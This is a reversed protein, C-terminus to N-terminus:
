LSRGTEQSVASRILQGLIRENAPDMGPSRWLCIMQPWRSTKTTSYGLLAAIFRDRMTLAQIGPVGAGLGMVTAFDGTLIAAEAAEIMMTLKLSSDRTVEIGELLSACAARLNGTYADIVGSLHLLRM